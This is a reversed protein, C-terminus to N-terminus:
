QGNRALSMALFPSEERCAVSTVFYRIDDMAHDDKKIVADKGSDTDWCYLGFERISDKCSPSFILRGAELMDQVKRIGSIVDNEAALATFRGRRRILEIFSAASPDVVVASVELGGALRELAAYHESDTRRVGTLRSDYYYERVRYWKGGCKGWLGFSSPNVTGYDCSIVYEEAEGPMEGVHRHESFMPYVCGRAATWLGLIYRERFVGTYLREYRSLVEPPLAPNDMMVFHIYLCKKERAKEIWETHFWHKPHEPNCNFWFKAGQVSCRALAQEVFSRPMLAVEDFMVGALTIGQILSASSEDKGGFIFFYNRHGFATIELMNRSLKEEWEFGADRLVPFVGSIINRRASSITKGCIAFANSNFNAMAWTVFSLTMCLTKGSRVAGDCIIGDKQAGGEGAWWTLVKMQKPSFPAYSM